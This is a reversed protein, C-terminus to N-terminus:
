NVDCKGGIHFYADPLVTKMEAFLGELVAYTEERTPDLPVDDVHGLEDTYRPCAVTIGRLQESLGWSYAHGPVDMEPVVRVGRDRAYAVVERIDDLTYVAPAHKHSSSSATAPGSAASPWSGDRAMEPFLLSALPFSYSDVIHWHLTNLKVSAMGDVLRRIYDMSIFHNSTDLLFGRWPYRPSDKILVPAGRIRGGAEVLQSFTDLAYIAGWVTDATVVAVPSEGQVSIEYNESDDLRKPTDDHDSLITIKLGTLREVGNYEGQPHKSVEAYAYYDDDSEFRFQPEVFRGRTLRTPQNIILKQYREIASFMITSNKARSDESLYINFTSSLLRNGTEPFCEVESPWPWINYKCLNYTGYFDHSHSKAKPRAEVLSSSSLALLLLGGYLLM